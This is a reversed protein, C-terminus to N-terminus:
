HIKKFFKFNKGEVVLHYGYKKAIKEAFGLYVNLKKKENATYTFYYPSKKSIVSKVFSVVNAFVKMPNKTKVLNSTYFVKKTYGDDDFVHFDDFIIKSTKKKSKLGDVYLSFENNEYKVVYAIDDVEFEYELMQTHEEFDFYM